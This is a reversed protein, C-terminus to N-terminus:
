WTKWPAEGSDWLRRLINLERVTDMCQWFGDHRFAMLEGKHALNELLHSELSCSPDDPLLDFVEREFVFFGGNILGASAQPKESFTAIRDDRMQLEGFRAPPHVATVTALKGHSRHFKELEILDVDGVGDGYTLMFTPGEVYREVRKLRAGTMSDQGTDALTVKWHEDHRSHLTVGSGDGLAVTVDGQRADYSLFYDKIVHGLYGLCLVFDEHGRSAYGKMIHWLIPHEGISVM